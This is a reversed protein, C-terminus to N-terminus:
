NSPIDFFIGNDWKEYIYSKKLTINPSWGFGSIIPQRYRVTVKLPVIISSVVPIGEFSNEVGVDINETKISPDATKMIHKVYEKVEPEGKVVALRAGQMAARSVLAKKQGADALSFAALAVLLLLPAVVALEVTSTGKESKFKEIAKVFNNKYITLYFIKVM